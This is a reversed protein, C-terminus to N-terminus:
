LKPAGPALFGQSSMKSKPAGLNGELLLLKQQALHRGSQEDLRPRGPFKAIHSRIQQHPPPEPKGTKKRGNEKGTMVYIKSM